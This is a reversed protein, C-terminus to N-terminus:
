NYIQCQSTFVTSSFDYYVDPQLRFFQEILDLSLNGIKAFSSCLFYSFVFTCLLLNVKNFNVLPPCHEGFEFKGPQGGRCFEHVTSQCLLAYM